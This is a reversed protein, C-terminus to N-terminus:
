QFERKLFRLNDFTFSFLVKFYRQQILNNSTTGLQGAQLGINLVSPSPHLLNVQSKSDTGIPLGLGFSVCYDNLATNNIDLYTQSYSLGLRYHIRHFYTHPKTDHKDPVFQVGLGMQTSNNLNEPQGFYSYQKWNQTSYDFTFTWQDGKKVSIGYGVSLPFRVHGNIINSDQITDYIIGTYYNVALLNYSAKVNYAPAFTVGATVHWGSDNGLTYMLGYNFYFSKINTNQAREVSFNNYNSPYDLLEVNTLNGFLYCANAGLSLQRKKGIGVSLGLFANNVGGSGTYQTSVNDITYTQGNPAISDLPSTTSISYGESSLPTIGFCANAWKCRPVPFASAFYGFYTNHTTHSVGQSTLTENNNLVGAEFTSIRNYTYSAPNKLNVFYPTTSDNRLAIGTQGMSFGQVGNENQLMGIGYRSYPSVIASQGMSLLPLLCVIIYVSLKLYFRIM